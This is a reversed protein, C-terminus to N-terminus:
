NITEPNGKVFIVSPVLNNFVQQSHIEMFNKIELTNLIASNSNTAAKHCMLAKNAKNKIQGKRQFISKDTCTKSIGM